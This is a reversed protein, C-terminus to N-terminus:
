KGVGPVERVIAEEVFVVVKTGERVEMLSRVVENGASFARRTFRIRHAFSVTIEFDVDTM